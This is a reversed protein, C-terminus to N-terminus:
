PFMRWREARCTALVSALADDDGKALLDVLEDLRDRCASAAGLVECRNTTLIDLMMRVDCGAVRSTDRYGGAVIKWAAPDSSTLADATRVLACALLYPLHSLTAALHDQREADLVMPRGGAARALSKGLELAEASTRELPCLIFTCGRYLDSDAAALGSEEKGCMPHGGLPEVGAPLREMAELIERKTSGLDILLAGDALLSGYRGIQHLITRVPTALVVIDAGPLLVEPDTAGRRIVGRRVAEEVTESRRAIGSVEACRGNLAAALSAGMLGLGVVTVHCASLEKM